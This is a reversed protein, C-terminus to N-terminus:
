KGGSVVYYSSAADAMDNTEYRDGAIDWGADESQGSYDGNGAWQAVTATITDDVTAEPTVANNDQGVLYFQFHYADTTGIGYTTFAERYYELAQAKNRNVAKANTVTFTNEKGAVADLKWKTYDSETDTLTLNNGTAGTTLYKGNSVFTVNGSEEDFRATLVMANDPVALGGDSVNADVGSFKSNAATTSLVKGSAPHYIVVQNGEEMSSIVPVRTATDAEKVTYTYSVRASDSLGEKSAYAWLTTDEAITIDSGDYEKYGSNEERSVYIIAGETECTLQVATDKTVEGAAVSVQPVAVTELPTQNNIPETPTSSPDTIGTSSDGAAPTSATPEEAWVTITGVSTFMTTVLM